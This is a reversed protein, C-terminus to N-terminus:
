AARTAPWRALAFVWIVLLNVLPVLLLLAWAGRYGAKKAIVWGPVLVLGIWFLLIIFHWVSFSQM